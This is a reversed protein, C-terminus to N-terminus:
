DVKEGRRAGEFWEWVGLWAGRAAEVTDLAHDAGEFWCLGVEKGKGKMAHYLALGQSPPVRQDSDGLLLLTPATIAGHYQLPSVSDLAAYLDPTLYPPPSQLSFPHGTEALTWDKIDTEVFQEGIHTVPNRMAVAKWSAPQRGALHGAIFGGHSGGSLYISDKAAYGQTIAYELAAMCDEIDLTGARGILSSNFAPSRGLSGHYNPALISYGTLCLAAAGPAFDTTTTGHPGGHPLLICPPPSSTSDSPRLLIAEVPGDSPSAQETGPISLIRLNAQSLQEVDPSFPPLTVQWLPRPQEDSGAPIYLVEPLSILSSRLLLLGGESAALFAWSHTDSQGGGFGYARRAEGDLSFTRVIRKSGSITTLGFLMEDEGKDSTIFPERPLQDIWLGSNADHSDKYDLPIIEQVEGDSDDALMATCIASSSNHPGGEPTELWIVQSRKSSPVARPSRAARGPTSLQRMKSEQMTVVTAATVKARASLHQSEKENGKVDEPVPFARISSPRNTCYVQGLRRGDAMADYATAAVWNGDSTLVGQALIRDPKTTRLEQLHAPLSGGVRLLFLRPQFDRAYKEGMPAQYRFRDLPSRISSGSSPSDEDRPHKAGAQYLISLRGTTPDLSASSTSFTATRSAFTTVTLTFFSPCLRALSSVMRLSPAMPQGLTSTTSGRREGGCRLSASARAVKQVRGM